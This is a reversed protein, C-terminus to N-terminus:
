GLRAAHCPPAPRAPLTFDHHLVALGQPQARDLNCGYMPSLSHHHDWLQAPALAEAHYAWHVPYRAPPHDATHESHCQDDMYSNSGATSSESSWTSMQYLHDMDMPETKYVLGLGFSPQLKRRSGRASPTYRDLSSLLPPSSPPPSPSGPPFLNPFQVQYPVLNDSNELNV